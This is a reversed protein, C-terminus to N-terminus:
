DPWGAAAKQADAERSVSARGARGRWFAKFGSSSLLLLHCLAEGMKVSCSLLSSLCRGRFLLLMKRMKVSCSLVSLVHIDYLCLAGAVWAQCGVAREGLRLQAVPQLGLLSDEYGLAGLDDSHCHLCAVFRHRQQTLALVDLTVCGVNHLLHTVLGYICAAALHQALEGAVREGTSHQTGHVM